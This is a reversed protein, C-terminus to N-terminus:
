ARKGRPSRPLILDALELWKRIKQLGAAEDEPNSSPPLLSGFQAPSATTGTDNRQADRRPMHLIKPM